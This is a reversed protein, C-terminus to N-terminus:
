DINYGIKKKMSLAMKPTVFLTFITSLFYILDRPTKYELNFVANKKVNWYVLRKKQWGKGRM